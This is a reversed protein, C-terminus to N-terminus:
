ECMSSSEGTSRACMPCSGIATPLHGKEQLGPPPWAVTYSVRPHPRAVRAAPGPTGSHPGGQSCGCSHQARPSLLNRQVSCGAAVHGNLATRFSAKKTLSEVHM